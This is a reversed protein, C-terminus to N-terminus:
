SARSRVRTMRRPRAVRKANQVSRLTCATDVACRQRKVAPTSPHIKTETPDQTSQCSWARDLDTLAMMTERSTYYPDTETSHEASFALHLCVETPSSDSSVSSTEDFLPSAVSFPSSPPNSALSECTEASPLASSRLVATLPDESSTNQLSDVTAREALDQVMVTHIPTLPTDGEADLDDQELSSPPTTATHAHLTPNMEFPLSLTLSGAHTHSETSRPLPLAHQFVPDNTHETSGAGNVPSQTRQTDSNPSAEQCTRPSRIQPDSSIVADPQLAVGQLASDTATGLDDLELDHFMTKHFDEEEGDSENGLNNSPLTWPTAETNLGARPDSVKPHWSQENLALSSWVERALNTSRLVFDSGGIGLVSDNADDDDDDDDDDDEKSEASTTTAMPARWLGTMTRVPKPSLIGCMDTRGSSAAGPRRPPPVIREGHRTFTAPIYEAPTHQKQSSVPASGSIRLKPTPVAASSSDSQGASQSVPQTHDDQRQTYRLTLTPSKTRTQSKSRTSSAHTSSIHAGKRPESTLAEPPRYMTSPRRQRKGPGTGEDPSATGDDHVALNSASTLDESEQMRNPPTRLPTIISCSDHDRRKNGMPTPTPQTLPSMRSRPASRAGPTVPTPSPSRVRSSVKRPRSMRRSGPHDLSTSANAMSETNQSSAELPTRSSIGVGM